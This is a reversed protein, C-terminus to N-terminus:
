KKCVYYFDNYEDDNAKMSAFPAHAQNCVIGISDAYARLDKVLEIWNDAFIIEDLLGGTFMTADYADFGAEKLMKIIEKISGYKRFCGSDISIYRKM